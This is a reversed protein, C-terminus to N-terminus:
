EDGHRCVASYQVLLAVSQVVVFLAWGGLALLPLVNVAIRGRSGYAAWIGVCVGVFVLWFVAYGALVARVQILRGLEDPEEDRKQDSAGYFIPGLAWLGLVGLAGAARQPGLWPWLALFTMGALGCIALNFWAHKEQRSLAVKEFERKRHRGIRM